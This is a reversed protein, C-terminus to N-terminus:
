PTKKGDIKAEVGGRKADDRQNDRRRANSDILSALVVGLGIAAVVLGIIIGWSSMM